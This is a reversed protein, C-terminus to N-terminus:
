SQREACAEFWAVTTHMSEAPRRRQGRQRQRTQCVGRGGYPGCLGGETSTPDEPEASEAVEEIRAPASFRLEQCIRQVEPGKPGPVNVYVLRVRPDFLPTRWGKACRRGETGGNRCQTGQAEDTGRTHRQEATAM